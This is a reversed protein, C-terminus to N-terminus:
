RRIRASTPSGTDRTRSPWLRVQPDAPISEVTRMRSLLAGGALGLALGVFTTGVGSRSLALEWGPTLRRPMALYDVAAAMAATAAGGAIIRRPSRGSERQLWISCPVAWFLASAVHTLVGIGTHTVDLRRVRGAGQGHLWHSTANLPQLAGRGEARAAVGAALASALGALAGSWVIDILLDPEPRPAVPTPPRRARDSRVRRDNSEFMAKLFAAGDKPKQGRDVRRTCGLELPTGKPVSKTGETPRIIAAAARRSRGTPPGSV